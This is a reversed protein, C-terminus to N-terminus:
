EEGIINYVTKKIIIGASKPAIRGPLSLAHIVRVSLDEAAADDVGGPASALDIILAGAACEELAKADLIISPVTNFILDYRGTLHSTIQPKMGAAAILESDRLKRSSVSVRAGLGQLMHSLVRGIKGYGIVLVESGNIVFDTEQIAIMIAGEATPVANAAAFEGRESYCFSNKESLLHGPLKGSMGCFVPKRNDIMSLVAQADPPSSSFPAFITSGDKSVPLPLIIADCCRIVEGPDDSQMGVADSCKDFGSLMVEFGDEALSRACYLQRLDGAIIGFSNINIM